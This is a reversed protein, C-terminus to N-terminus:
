QHGHHSEFACGETYSVSARDLQAVLAYQANRKKIGRSEPVSEELQRVERRGNDHVIYRLHFPEEDYMWYENVVIEDRVIM